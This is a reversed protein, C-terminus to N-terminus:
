WHDWNGVVLISWVRLLDCYVFLPSIIQSSKTAPDLGTQLRGAYYVSIKVAQGTENHHRVIILNTLLIEALEHDDLDIITAPLGLHEYAKAVIRDLKGLVEHCLM